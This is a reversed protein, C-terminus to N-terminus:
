SGLQKLAATSNRLNSWLGWAGIANIGAYAAISLAPLVFALSSFGISLGVAFLSLFVSMWALLKTPLTEHKRATEAKLAEVRNQLTQPSLLMLQQTHKNM